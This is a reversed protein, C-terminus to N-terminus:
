VELLFIFLLIVRFISKAALLRINIYAQSHLTAPYLLRYVSICSIHFLKNSFKGGISDDHRGKRCLGEFSVISYKYIM